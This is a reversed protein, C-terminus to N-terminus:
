HNSFILLTFLPICYRLGGIIPSIHQLFLSLKLNIQSFFCFDQFREFNSSITLKRYLKILDWFKKFNEFVQENKEKLLAFNEDLSSFKVQSMPFEDFNRIRIRRWFVTSKRCKGNIKKGMRNVENHIKYLKASAKTMKKIRQFYLHGKNWCCFWYKKM